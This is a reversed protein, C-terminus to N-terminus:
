PISPPVGGDPAEARAVEPHERQFAAMLEPLVMFQNGGFFIVLDSDTPNGHLDPVNNVGSVTFNVGGRPPANWPPDLRDAWAGMRCIALILPVTVFLMRM